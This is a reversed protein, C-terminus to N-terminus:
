SNRRSRKGDHPWKRQQRGILRSGLFPCKRTGRLGFPTNASCHRSPALDAARILIVDSCEGFGDHVHFFVGAGMLVSPVVAVDEHGLGPIPVLANDQPM